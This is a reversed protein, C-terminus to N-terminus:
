APSLSTTRPRASESLCSSTSAEFIHTSADEVADGDRILNPTLQHRHDRRKGGPDAPRGAQADHQDAVIRRGVDVDAAFSFDAASVPSRASASRSGASADSSSRSATTSRRFRLSTCSPIRTCDGRGSAIPASASRRTNSTTRGSLSTSPNWGILTPNSTWFRAVSVAQVGDPTISSSSRDFMAMAPARATTIPRLSM